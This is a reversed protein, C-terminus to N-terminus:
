PLPPLLKTEQPEGLPTITRSSHVGNAGNKLILGYGYEGSDSFTYAEIMETTSKAIVPV